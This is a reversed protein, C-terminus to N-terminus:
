IIKLEARPLKHQLNKAYSIPFIEDDRGWILTTPVNIKSFQVDIGGAVRTVQKKVKFYQPLARTTLLVFGGIFRGLTQLQNVYRLQYLTKQVSLYILKEFSSSIVMGASDTLMLRSVNKNGQSLKLAIAGGM